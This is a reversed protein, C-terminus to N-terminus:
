FGGYHRTKGPNGFSHPLSLDLRVESSQSHAGSTVAPPEGSGVEEAVPPAATVAKLPLQQGPEPLYDQENHVNVVGAPEADLYHNCSNATIEM